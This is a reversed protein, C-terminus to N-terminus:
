FAGSLGIGSGNPVAVLGFHLKLAPDEHYLDLMRETPTATTRVLFGLVMIFAADTYTMAPQIAHNKPESPPSILEATAGALLALGLGEFTWFLINRQRRERAAMRTLWEETKVFAWAGNGRTAVLEQEFTTLAREGSSPTLGHYLGLGILGAGIGGATAIGVPYAHRDQQDLALGVAVSGLVAGFGVAVTGQVTRMSRDQEAMASLYNHMRSLDAQTLGYVPEPAAASTKLYQAYATPGYPSAFLAGFLTDGRSSVDPKQLDLSALEVTETGPAIRRELLQPRIQLGNGKREEYVFLEQDVGGPVILTMAGTEKHLDLVRGGTANKIWLRSAANTLAIKRGAMAAKPFLAANANGQPGRYFLHPRLVERAIGSNASEVFGALESYSIIGDGNVDAAGTLGSRVEHSFVGSEIESWEFVESDSNTSLFLGVEPHRASFGLAMDKPTAWRRGGPKRPNIVFFSNCSDLLLHRNDAPIRDLIQHEIATGDMRGDELELTGHGEQVDGHGAYVFYFSTSEGRRRALSVADGLSAAALDLQSRTPRRAVNVLEPYIAASARDFTTLLLVDEEAALSRFLQYYRAGDDDAYQLDPQSLSISKNNTVILAFVHAAPNASAPRAFFSISAWLLCTFLGVRWGCTERLSQRRTVNSNVPSRLTYAMHLEM